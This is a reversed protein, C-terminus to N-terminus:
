KKSEAHEAKQQILGLGGGAGEAAIQAAKQGEKLSAQAKRVLEAKIEQSRAREKTGHLCELYDDSFPRCTRPNDTQAYCKSFEQWYEFCRSRGGSYGFGSAM